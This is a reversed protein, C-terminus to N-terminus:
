ALDVGAGDVEGGDRRSDAQLEQRGQDGRAADAFARQPDHLAPAPLWVSGSRRAYREGIAAHEDDGGLVVQFLQLAPYPRCRNRTGASIPADDRCRRTVTSFVAVQHRDGQRDARLDIVEGEGRQALRRTEAAPALVYGTTRM